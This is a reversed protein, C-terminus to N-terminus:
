ASQIVKENSELLQEIYTIEKQKKEKERIYELENEDELLADLDEDPPADWGFDM